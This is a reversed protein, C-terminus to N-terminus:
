MLCDTIVTTLARSFDFHWFGDLRFQGVVGKKENALEYLDSFEYALKIESCWKDPWFSTNLGNGVKSKSCILFVELQKIIGKWFHSCNKM